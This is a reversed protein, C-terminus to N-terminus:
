DVHVIHRIANPHPQRQNSRTQPCQQFAHRGRCIFCIHAHPCTRSRCISNNYNPLCDKRSLTTYKPVPEWRWTPFVPAGEFPVGWPLWLTYWPVGRVLLRGKSTLCSQWLNPDIIGWSYAHPLSALALRFKRDYALWADNYYNTNADVIIAQYALLDAALEPCADVQVRTYTTFAEIWTGIDHM